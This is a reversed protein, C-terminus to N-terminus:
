ALEAAGARQPDGAAEASVFGTVLEGLRDPADMQVFARATQIRELRADAFLAALREADAVPFFPDRTGWVTGASLKIERM